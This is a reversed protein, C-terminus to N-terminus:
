QKLSFNTNCFFVLGFSKIKQLSIWVHHLCHTHCHHKFDDYIINSRQLILDLNHWHKILVHNWEESICNDKIIIFSSVIWYNFPKIRNHDQPKLEQGHLEWRCTRIIVKIRQINLWRIYKLYNDCIFHNSIYNWPNISITITTVPLSYTYHQLSPFFWLLFHLFVAEPNWNLMARKIMLFVIMFTIRYNFEIFLSKDYWYVNTM